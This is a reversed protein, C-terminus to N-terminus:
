INRISEILNRITDIDFDIIFCKWMILVFIYCPIMFLISLNIFANNYFCWKLVKWIGRIINDRRSETIIARLTPRKVKFYFYVFFTYVVVALLSMSLFISIPILFYLEITIRDFATIVTEM